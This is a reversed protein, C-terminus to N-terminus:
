DKDRQIGLGLLGGALAAVTEGNLFKQLALTLILPIGLSITLARTTNLGIGADQTKKNRM